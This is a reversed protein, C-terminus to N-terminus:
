TLYPIAIFAWILTVSLLIAHLVASPMLQSNPGTVMRGRCFFVNNGSWTKYDATKRKKSGINSFGEENLRHPTPDLNQTGGDNSHIGYELRERYEGPHIGQM